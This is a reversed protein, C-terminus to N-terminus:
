PVLTRRVFKKVASWQMHGILPTNKHYELQQTAADYVVPYSLYKAYGEGHAKGSTFYEAVSPDVKEAILVPVIHLFVVPLIGNYRTRRRHATVYARQNFRLVLDGRAEPVAAVMVVRENFGIISIPSYHFRKAVCLFNGGLETSSYRSQQKGGPLYNGSELYDQFGADDARVDHELSYGAASLRDEITKAYKSATPSLSPRVPKPPAPAHPMPKKPRASPAGAKPAAPKEAAVVVPETGPRQAPYKKGCKLCAITKGLMEDEQRVPHQCWPCVAAFAM